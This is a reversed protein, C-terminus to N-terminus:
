MTCVHMSRDLTWTASIIRDRKSMSAVANWNCSVYAYLSWVSMSIHLHMYMYMYMGCMMMVSVDSSNTGASHTQKLRWQQETTHNSTIDMVQNRHQQRDTIETNKMAITQRMWSSEESSAEKREREVKWWEIKNVTSASINTDIKSKMAARLLFCNTSLLSGCMDHRCEIMNDQSLTKCGHTQILPYPILNTQTDIKYGKFSPHKLSFCRIWM